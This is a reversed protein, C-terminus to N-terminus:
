LARRCCAAQERAARLRDATVARGARLFQRLKESMQPEPEQKLSEAAEAGMIAIQADVLGEFVPGWEVERAGLRTAADEVLRQTGLAAPLMGDAVAAASGSSSGGPTRSPDHPNRTKGPSYVAFETTVTKGLIVAGADRLRRVCEADRAPRHGRHAKSGYGTPL